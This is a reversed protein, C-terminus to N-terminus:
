VIKEPSEWTTDVLSLLLVTGLFVGLVDMGVNTLPAIPPMVTFIGMIAFILLINIGTKSIPKSSPAAAARKIFFANM